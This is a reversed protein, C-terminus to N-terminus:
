SRGYLSIIGNNVFNSVRPFLTLSTIAATSAWRGGGIHAFQNGGTTNWPSFSSYRVSKHWNTDAYDGILMELLLIAGTPANAGPISGPQILTAAGNSDYGAVTVNSPGTANAQEWYYNSGTDGNFRLSFDDYNYSARDCRARVIVEMDRFGAPVNLTVSSPTGSIITESILQRSNDASSQVQSVTASGSLSLLSGTSSSILSRSLTTGSSTYVGVGLEWANGTDEILYIYSFGNIAGAASWSRYPAIASGLTVTGTGTTATAAKARDLQIM